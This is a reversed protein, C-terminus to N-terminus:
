LNNKRLNDKPNRFQLLYRSSNLGSPLLVSVFSVCVEAEIVDWEEVMFDRDCVSACNSRHRAETTCTAHVSAGDVQEQM